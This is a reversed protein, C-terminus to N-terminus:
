KILKVVLSDKLMRLAEEPKIPLSKVRKGLARSVANAIASGVSKTALEGISKADYPGYPGYSETILFGGGKLKISKIM